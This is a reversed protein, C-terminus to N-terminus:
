RRYMQQQQQQQMQQQQQQQQLRRKNQKHRRLLALTRLKDKYRDNENQKEVSINSDTNEDWRRCLYISNFIRGIQYDHSISLGMAYDEGYSTNPMHYSRLIPTFFARPAGLGNIRLANNRGNKPTWERHDILGPEIPNFDFDTVTYSGIVMACQLKYFTNVITQLTHETQYIDDSDLQVAFRGCHINDVALNWCGGINLDDRDPIIHIIREDQQAFKDIIESTGDTSHNDVIIINYPFETSQNIASQIADSITKARNKVPIIVSAENEFYDMEFNVPKFIPELFGGTERLHRTCAMEKEIQDERNRPDVYSFMGKNADGEVTYLLENLHFIPRKSSLALRTRYWGSTVYNEKNNNVELQFAKRNILIVSGFDFNDRLSGLQYDITPHARKVGDIVEYYDAYIIGAQTITAVQNLREVGYQTFRFPVNHPCYMIYDNQAMLSVFKMTRSSELNNTVITRYGLQPVATQDSVLLIIEGVCREERLANITEITTEDSLYPIFCDIM